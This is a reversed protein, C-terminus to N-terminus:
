HIITYIQVHIYTCTHTHHCPMHYPSFTSVGVILWGFLVGGGLVAQLGGEHFRAGFGVARGPVVHVEVEFAERQGVAQAHAAADVRAKPEKQGLGELPTHRARRIPGKPIAGQRPTLVKLQFSQLHTTPHNPPNTHTSGGGGGCRMVSCAVYISMCIHLYYKYVCARIRVCTHPTPPSSRMLSAVAACPCARASVASFIALARLTHSFTPTHTTHNARCVCVCVIYIYVCVYFRM